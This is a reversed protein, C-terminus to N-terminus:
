KHISYCLLTHILSSKVERFTPDLEVVKQATALDDQLSAIRSAGLYSLSDQLQYHFSSKLQSM